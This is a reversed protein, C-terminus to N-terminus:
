GARSSEESDLERQDHRLDPILMIKMVMPVREIYSFDGQDKQPGVATGAPFPM